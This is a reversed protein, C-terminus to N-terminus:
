NARTIRGELEKEPTEQRGKGWELLFHNSNEPNENKGRGVLVRRGRQPAGLGKLSGGGYCARVGLPPERPRQSRM